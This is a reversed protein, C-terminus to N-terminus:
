NKRTEEYGPSIVEAIKKSVELQVSFPFENEIEEYTLKSLDEGDIVPVLLKFMEVIRANTQAAVKALEKISKDNILVDDDTFKIEENDFSDKKELLPDVMKKYQDQWEVNKVRENMAEMESALPVRVRLTQGAMTFERIRINNSNIKLSESLKM